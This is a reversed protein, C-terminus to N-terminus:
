KCPSQIYIERPISCEAWFVPRSATEGSMFNWHGNRSFVVPHPALEDYKEEYYIGLLIGPKQPDIKSADHWIIKSEIYNSNTSRMNKNKFNLINFLKINEKM